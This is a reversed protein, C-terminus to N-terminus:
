LYGVLYKSENNHIANTVNRNNLESEFYGNNDIGDFNNQFAIWYEKAPFDKMPRRPTSESISWCGIFLDTTSIPCTVFEVDVINVSGLYYKQISHIEPFDYIYYLGRFGLLRIVHCLYGCGGGFEFISNIKSLDTGGITQFTQINWYQNLLNEYDGDVISNAGFLDKIDKSIKDEFFDIYSARMTAGVANFERFKHIGLANTDISISHRFGNWSGNSMVLDM